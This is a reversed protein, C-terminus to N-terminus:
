WTLAAAVGSAVLLLAFGDPWHSPKVALTLRQPGMDSAGLWDRWGSDIDGTEVFEIVLMLRVVIRERLDRWYRVPGLLWYLGSLLGVTGLFEHLLSLSVLLLVLRVFHEAALLLGDQTLGIEGLVGPVALGPTAFAFLLAISLLLWRARRLLGITRSRAVFMAALICPISLVLLVSLAFVPLVLAFGAWALLLTAPHFM